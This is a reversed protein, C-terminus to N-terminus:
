SPAPKACRSAFSCAGGNFREVLRELEEQAHSIAEDPQAGGQLGGAVSGTGIGGEVARRGRDLRQAAATAGALRHQSSRHVSSNTVIAVANHVRRLASSSRGSMGNEPHVMGISGSSRWESFICAKLLDGRPKGIACASYSQLTRLDPPSSQLGNRSESRRNLFEAFPKISCRRSPRM